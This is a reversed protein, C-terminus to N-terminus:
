ARSLKIYLRYTISSAHHTHTIVETTVTVLLTHHVIITIIRRHLFTVPVPETRLCATASHGTPSRGHRLYLLAFGPLHLILAGHWAVPASVAGPGGLCGIVAHCIAAPFAHHRGVASHGYPALSLFGQPAEAGPGGTIPRACVMTVVAAQQSRYGRREKCGKNDEEPNRSDM